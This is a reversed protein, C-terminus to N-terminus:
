IEFTLKEPYDLTHDYKEIDSISTMQRVAFIHDTTKNYCDTAYVELQSLIKLIVECPVTISVNLDRLDLRYGSRAMDYCDQIAIKLINREQKNAWYPITHGNYNIYCINVHESVDYQEIDEIKKQIAVKLLDEDTPQQTQQTYVEWGDALIQEHTPNFITSTDTVIVIRDKSSIINNKIYIM